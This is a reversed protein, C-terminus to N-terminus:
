KKNSNYKEYVNKYRYHSLVSYSFMLKLPEQHISQMIKSAHLHCIDSFLQYM